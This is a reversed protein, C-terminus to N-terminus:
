WRCTKRAEDILPDLGQADFVLGDVAPNDSEVHIRHAGILQRIQEIGPLGRGADLVQGNEMVQWPTPVTAGREGLLRVQVRSADVPQATVLQLRSINQVCSIILYPHPAVSAIAPASIMLGGEESRLRFRLDEPARGTEHILVRRVTPAELEQASWQRHPTFGPTGAAQDFCALREINSVIRSCDQSARTLAPMFLFLLSLGVGGAYRIIM